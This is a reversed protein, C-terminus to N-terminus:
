LASQQPTPSSSLDSTQAISPLHHPSWHPREVTELPSNPPSLTYAPAQWSPFCSRSSLTRSSPATLISHTQGNAKQM